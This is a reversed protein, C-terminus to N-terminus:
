REDDVTKDLVHLRKKEYTHMRKPCINIHLYMNIAMYVETGEKRSAVNQPTGDHAKSLDPHAAPSFRKRFV